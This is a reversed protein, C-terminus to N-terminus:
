CAGGWPANGQQAYLEAAMADQDAPAAAAPDMGVLDSRGSSEAISNWTGPLFQYAGSAGSGQSNHVTYDGGSERQRVCDLFGGNGGSVPAPAPAASRTEAVAPRAQAAEEAALSDLFAKLQAAEIGDIFAAVQQLEVARVYAAITAGINDRLSTNQYAPPDQPSAAIPRVAHPDDPEAAMPAAFAVGAALAVVCLPAIFLLTRKHM